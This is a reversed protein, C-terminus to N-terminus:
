DVSAQYIEDVAERLAADFAEDSMSVQLDQLLARSFSGILGRNQALKRCAEARDYGGSLAVVRAVGPHEILPRYFNPEDPITLKLMVQRGSPLKELEALIADRLMAEAKPKEPSSILVEPELIPMLGHGAITEGLEFQQRAIAAIGDANAMRITSRMKTGAVGLKAARALLAELGPTPKMLSVGDKEAELGKDTKVFPVVGRKEWLYSPVPQGEVTGDMTQEFLIAAIVKKGDFAPSTIIRTRMEHMLRFMDADNDYASKPIGYLELARPTSGGSQDLAAIFGPRDRMQALMTADPM